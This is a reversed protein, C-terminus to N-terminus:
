WHDYITNAFEGMACTYYSRHNITTEPPQEAVYQKFQEAITVVSM